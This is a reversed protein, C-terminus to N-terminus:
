YNSTTSENSSLELTGTFVEVAPGTMYLPNGPGEWQIHLRGGPLDVAVTSDLLGSWRGWAVAACAGTGCAETEGTGREHVRLRISQGSVVEMFDVNCREPFSPHRELIPGLALVPASSVADVQVVAHPNGVSVAGVRVTNGAVNLSYTKKQQLSVFPIKIPTFDPEGMDVTVQHDANIRLGVRTTGTDVTVLDKDSLGQKRIFRAICRAGNGCNGAKSGDANYILYGFDAGATSPTVVLLQDCGIGRHRDAILRVDEPYLELHQRVGDFIVFDNGLGHM